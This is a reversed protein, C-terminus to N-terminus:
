PSVPLAIKVGWALRARLTEDIADGGSGDAAPDTESRLVVGGILAARGLVCFVGPLCLPLAGFAAPRFAEGVSFGISLHPHLGPEGSLDVPWPYLDVLALSRFGEAELGDAVVQGEEVTFSLRDAEDEELLGGVSFGIRSREVVRFTAERRRAPAALLTEFAVLAEQAGKQVARARHEANLDM